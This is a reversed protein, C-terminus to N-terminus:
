VRNNYSVLVSDYVSVLQKYYVDPSFLKLAFTYANNSYDHYEKESLLNCENIIRTLEFSSKSTFTLGTKKNDILEELAGIKAGIVPKGMAYAEVTTLSNTEYCESPVIVFLANQILSELESGSKHGIVEINPTAHFKLYQELPGAGAIKLKLTSNTNFTTLLTSLGKEKALRGFSLFYDGKVSNQKFKNTFNYIRSSKSYISDNFSSFLNKSFDSVFIYHDINNDFPILLDRIYSETMLLASRVVGSSSCNKLFCNYYKGGACKMCFENSRDIFHCTPCILRFDHITAVVPIKYKKLIPFISFTIGGVINHIHAIEPRVEQIIKELLYASNKSYLKRLLSKPFDLFYEGDEVLNDKQNRMSLSVVQHKNKKLVDITNQFVTEAGGVNSFHNNIQLIKM